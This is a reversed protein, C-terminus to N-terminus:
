NSIQSLEYFLASWGCVVGRCGRLIKFNGCHLHERAQVPMGLCLPLVGYRNGCDADSRQLWTVAQRARHRAERSPGAVFNSGHRCCLTYVNSVRELVANPANNTLTVNLGTRISFPVRWSLSMSALTTPASRLWSGALASLGALRVSSHKSPLQRQDMNQFVSVLPRDAHRKRPPPRGAVAFRQQNATCSPMITRLSADM